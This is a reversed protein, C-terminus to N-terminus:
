IYFHSAQLESPICVLETAAFIRIIMSLVFKKALFIDCFHIEKVYKYKIINFWAMLSLIVEVFEEVPQVEYTIRIIM